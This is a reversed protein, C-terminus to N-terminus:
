IKVLEISSTRRIIEAMAEEQTAFIDSELTNLYVDSYYVFPLGPIKRLCYHPWENQIGVAKVMLEECQTGSIEWVMQGPYFKNKFIRLKEIPKKEEIKKKFM